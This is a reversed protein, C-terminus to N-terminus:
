YYVTRGRFISESGYLFTFNKLLFRNNWPFLEWRRPSFHVKKLTFPQEVFFVRVEMSFLSSKKFYVTTGRLIQCTGPLIQLYGQFYHMKKGQEISYNDFFTFLRLLRQIDIKAIGFPTHFTFSIQYITRTWCLLHM